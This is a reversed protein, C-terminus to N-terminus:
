KKINQPNKSRLDNTIAITTQKINRFKVTDFFPDLLDKEYKNRHAVYLNNLSFSGTKAATM